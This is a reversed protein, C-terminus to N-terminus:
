TPPIGFNEVSRSMSSANRRNPEILSTHTARLGGPNAKTSKAFNRSASSATRFESRTYTWTSHLWRSKQNSPETSKTKYYSATNYQLIRRKATLDTSPATSHFVARLTNRTGRSCASWAGRQATGSTPGTQGFWFRGLAQSYACYQKNTQKNDTEWIISVNAKERCCHDFRWCSCNGTISPM